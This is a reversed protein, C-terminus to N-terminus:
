SPPEPWEVNRPDTTNAPLDRLQQRYVAWAAADVPADPVQTWDSQKLLYRRTSRLDILAASLELTEREEAPIDVLVGNVVRKYAVDEQSILSGEGEEMNQVLDAEECSLSRKINGTETNYIIYNPV